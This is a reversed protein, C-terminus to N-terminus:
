RQGVRLSFVTFLKKPGALLIKEFVQMHSLQEAKVCIPSDYM